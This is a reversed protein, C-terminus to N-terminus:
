KFIGCKLNKYYEHKYVKNLQKLTITDLLYDPNINNENSVIKSFIDILEQNFKLHNLYDLKNQYDNISIYAVDIKLIYNLIIIIYNYIETERSPIIFGKKNEYKNTNSALSTPGMYRAPKILNDKLKVSDLDILYIDSLDTLVNEEHLDTLAFDLHKRIEDCERLINGLKKLYYIKEQHSIKSKLIEELTLSNKIEKTTFGILEEKYKVLELPLVFNDSFCNKNNNLIKVTYIYDKKLEENYPFKKLIKKEGDINIYCVRDHEFNIPRLKNFTEKNIEIEKM